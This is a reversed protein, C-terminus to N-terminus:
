HFDSFASTLARVTLHKLRATGDPISLQIDEAKPVFCFSLCIEGEDAFLELSTKDLLLRLRVCGNEGVLKATKGLCCLENSEAKYTVAVGKLNLEFGTATGLEVEIEMDFLDGTLAALPNQKPGLTVDSLTQVEGYLTEIERAPQRFMRVGRPTTKLTLENPFNMQQNFPMGPYSGGKMWAIQLCRGDSKPIDSYTQVAYFYEGWDAVLLDTEPTFTQGDFSGLLYNGNAGTFVWKHDQGNGDVALPFFDPCERTGPVDLNQLHQWSKLDKSAFLAFHHPEDLFLAIVWRKTEEHWIVKPDRNSGRLHEQVPNGQYKLWSKGADNSYALCQTFPKDKSAESTGGAATYIAVLAERGFGTTDQWDVVASGSFMTGLADPELANQLQQWHVLDSSVAHGWTMNGWNTGFPNHQFFLHYVGKYFVLGNPDNLWGKQATLHFQPRHQENYLDSM